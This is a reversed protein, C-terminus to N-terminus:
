EHESEVENAKLFALLEVILDHQGLKYYFKKIKLQEDSPFPFDELEANVKEHRENILELLKEKM